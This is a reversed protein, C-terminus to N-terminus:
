ESTLAITLVHVLRHYNIPLVAFVLGFIFLLIPQKHQQDTM